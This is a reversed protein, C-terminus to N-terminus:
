LNSFQSVDEYGSSNHWQNYQVSNTSNDFDCVEPMCSRHTNINLVIVLDPPLEM